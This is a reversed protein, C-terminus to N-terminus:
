NDSPHLHFVEALHETFAVHKKFTAEQGIEKKHGLHLKNVQKLKKPWRGSSITLPNQQHLGKCSHRSPAM